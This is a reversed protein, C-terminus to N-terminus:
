PAATRKAAVPTKSNKREGVAWVVGDVAEGVGGEVGVVTGGAGVVAGETGAAGVAGVM